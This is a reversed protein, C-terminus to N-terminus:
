HLPSRHETGHEAFDVSKSLSRSWAQTPPASPLWIEIHTSCCSLNQAARNKVSLM